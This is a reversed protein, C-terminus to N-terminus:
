EPFQKELLEKITEVLTTSTYRKGIGKIIEGFSAMDTQFRRAYRAKNQPSGRKITDLIDVIWIRIRDHQLKMIIDSFKSLFDENTLGTQNKLEALERIHLVEESEISGTLQQTVEEDLLFETREKETLGDLWAEPNDGDLVQDDGQLSNAIGVLDMEQLLSPVKVQPVKPFENSM